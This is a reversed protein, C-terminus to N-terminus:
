KSGRKSTLSADFSEVSKNLGEGIADVTNRRVSLNSQETSYQGQAAVSRKEYQSKLKKDSKSLGAMTSNWDRDFQASETHMVAKHEQQESYVIFIIALVVPAIFGLTKFLGSGM